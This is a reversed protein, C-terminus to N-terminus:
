YEGASAMELALVVGDAVAGCMDSDFPLGFAQWHLCVDKDIM